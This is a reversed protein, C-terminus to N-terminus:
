WDKVIIVNVGNDNLSDMQKKPLENDTILTDIDKYEAFTYPLVKGQKSSDVLMIKETAVSFVKKKLECENYLANSFGHVNSFGAAGFFATNINVRDLSFQAIPGSLSFVQKNLSGGTLVVEVNKRTSLESAFVPSNTLVFIPIDPFYKVMQLVTSSSDLYISSNKKLFEIACKGIRKKEEQYTLIRKSHSFKPSLVEENIKAGGHTRIVYGNKELMILDRRITMENYEPFLANLEKIRVEGKTKIYNLLTDFRKQYM